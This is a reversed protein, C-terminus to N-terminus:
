KNLTKPYPQWHQPGRYSLAKKDTNTNLNSLEIQSVGLRTPRTTRKKVYLNLSSYPINGHSYCEMSLHLEWRQTLNLLILDKHMEKIPTKKNCLLM